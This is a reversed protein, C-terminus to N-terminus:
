YITRWAYANSADKACVQVSDKVGMGGAVYWFTGRIGSACSPQAVATSLKLNAAQVDGNAKISFDETGSATQVDIAYNTGPTFSAGATQDEIWLARHTTPMTAGSFPQTAHFFSTATILGLSGSGPAYSCCYGKFSALDTVTGNGGHEADGVVGTFSGINGTGNSYTGGYLGTNDAGTFNHTGNLDLEGNVGLVKNTVNGGPTALVQFFLGDFAPTPAGNHPSATSWTYLGTWFRETSMSGSGFTVDGGSSGSTVRGVRLDGFASQDGLTIALMGNADFEPGGRILANNAVTANTGLIARHGVLNRWRSTTTAGLDYTDDAGPVFHGASGTAGSFPRFLGLTTESGFTISPISVSGNAYYSVSVWGTNTLMGTAKVWLAIGSCSSVCAYLDGPNGYVASNPSGSGSRLAANGTGFRQDQAGAPLSACLTLLLLLAISLGRRM